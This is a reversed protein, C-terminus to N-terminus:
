IATATFYFDANSNLPIAISVKTKSQSAPIMAHRKELNVNRWSLGLVNAQRLGTALSFAALNALHSPLEMLLREAEEKTLWREREDGEDRM